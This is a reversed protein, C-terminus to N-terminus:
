TTIAGAQGGVRDYKRLKGKKHPYIQIKSHAIINILWRCHDRYTSIVGSWGGICVLSYMYANNRPLLRDNQYTDASRSKSAPWWPILDFGGLPIEGAGCACILSPTCLIWYFYYIYADYGLLQYIGSWKLYISLMYFSEEASCTSRSRLKSDLSGERDITLGYVRSGTINKSGWYMLNLKERCTRPMYIVSM